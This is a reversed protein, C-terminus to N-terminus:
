RLKLNQLKFYHQDAVETMVEVSSPGSITGGEINSVSRYLTYGTGM